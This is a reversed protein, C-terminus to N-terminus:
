LVRGMLQHEHYQSYQIPDPSEEAKQQAYDSMTTENALALNMGRALPGGGRVQQNRLNTVFDLFEQPFDNEYVLDEFEKPIGGSRTLNFSDVTSTSAFLQGLQKPLTGAIPSFDDYVTKTGAEKLTAYRLSLRQLGHMAQIMGSIGNDRAEKMLSLLLESRNYGNESIDPHYEVFEIRDLLSQDEYKLDTM